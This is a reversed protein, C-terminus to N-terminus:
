WPQEHQILPLYVRHDKYNPQLPGYFAFARGEPETGQRYRPAGVVVSTQQGWRLNSVLGLAYGFETDAKDGEAQWGPQSNLGDASGYFVFVVGEARQDGTYLYAGVIVDAYGDGNVDGAGDVARGFGSAAQNGRALWGATAGPLPDDGYYLLAAGINADAVVYGPAGALLDDYGDGDVDGAGAVSTGLHADLQGGLAQWDPATAFGAEAGFFLLVAGEDEHDADHGPAGVLLDHRGDGNVDGAASVSTGLLAGAQGGSYTWDPVQPIPGDRGYFFYVAGESAEGVSQQPAGIAFDDCGDGNVDGVGAVAAGLLSDKQDGVFLWAPSSQL